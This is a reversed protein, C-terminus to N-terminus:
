LITRGNNEANTCHQLSIGPSPQNPDQVWVHVGVTLKDPPKARRVKEMIAANKEERAQILQPSSPWCMCQRAGQKSRVIASYAGRLFDTSDRSDSRIAGESRTTAPRDTAMADRIRQLDLMEEEMTVAAAAARFYRTRRTRTKGGKPTANVLAKMEMTSNASTKMGAMANASPKMAGQDDSDIRQVEPM